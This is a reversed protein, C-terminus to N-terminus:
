KRSNILYEYLKRFQDPSLEEARVTKVISNIELWQDFIEVNINQNVLFANINKRLLKRRQAFSCKIMQLFLKKNELSSKISIFKLVRSAVKPAPNFDQTGADCVIEINWFNQAIVSLFGYEDSSAKARLRQAVEKQFMLVMGDFQISDMSRDVVLTSSIQYPLNSVIINKKGSNEALYQVWNFRLADVELVNMNLDKWYKAIFSDLEILTLHSNMKSLFYTLAGPGPGIEVINDAKFAQAASITKEITLDNVLFNQGLSKKARLQYEELFLKLRERVTSM